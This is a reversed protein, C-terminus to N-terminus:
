GNTIDVPKSLDLYWKYENAGRSSDYYYGISNVNTWGFRFDAMTTREGIMEYLTAVKVAGYNDIDERLTNIIQKAHDESEVWIQKVQNGPRQGITDRGRQPQYNSIPTSFSTYNTVGTYVGSGSSSTKKYPVNGDPYLIGDRLKKLVEVIMTFIDDSMNRMTEKSKPVIVEEMVGKGLEKMINTEQTSAKVHIDHKPIERLANKDEAM